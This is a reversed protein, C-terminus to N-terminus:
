LNNFILGTKHVVHFSTMGKETKRPVMYITDQMEGDQCITWRTGTTKMICVKAGRAYEITRSTNAAEVLSGNPLKIVHKNDTCSFLTTAIVVSLLLLKKM